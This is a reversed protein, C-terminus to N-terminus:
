AMLGRNRAKRDANKQNRAEVFDDGYWFKQIGQAEKRKNRNEAAAVKHSKTKVNIFPHETKRKNRRRLREIFDFM